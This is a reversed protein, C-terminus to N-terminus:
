KKKKPAPKPAPKKAPAPTNPKSANSAAPANAKNAAAPKAEAQSKQANEKDTAEIQKLILESVDGGEPAVLVNRAQNNGGTNFIFQYGNAEAVKEIALYVKLYLPQILEQQRQALDKDVVQQLEQISTQLSELEKEKDKRIIEPLSAGKKQYEDLKTQFTKNKEQFLTEYEKRRKDLDAQIAKTDPLKSILYEVNSYGIKPDNQANAATFATFITLTILVLRNMIHQIQM